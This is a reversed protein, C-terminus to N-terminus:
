FRPTSLVGGVMKKFVNNMQYKNKEDDLIANISYIDKQVVCNTQFRLKTLNPYDKGSYVYDVKLKNITYDVRTTYGKNIDIIL